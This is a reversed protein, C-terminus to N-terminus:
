HNFWVFHTIYPCSFPVLWCSILFSTTKNGSLHSEGAYEERNLGNITWSDFAKFSTLQQIVFSFFKLHRLLFLPIKWIINQMMIFEGPKTVKLIIEGFDDPSGEFVSLEM